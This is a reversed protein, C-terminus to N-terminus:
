ESTTSFYTELDEQTLFLIIKEEEEDDSFINSSKINVFAKKHGEKEWVELVRQSLLSLPFEILTDV